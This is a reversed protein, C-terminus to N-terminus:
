RSRLLMADTDDWSADNLHASGLGALRSEVGKFLIQAEDAILEIHGHRDQIDPAHCCGSHAPRMM